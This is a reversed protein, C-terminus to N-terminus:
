MPPTGNRLRADTRRQVHTYTTESFDYGYDPYYELVGNPENL